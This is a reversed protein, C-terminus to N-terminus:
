DLNEKEEKEKEEWEVDFFNKEDAYENIIETIAFSRVDDFETYEDKIDEIRQQIDKESINIRTWQPQVEFLTM